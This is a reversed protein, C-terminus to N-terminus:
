EELQKLYRAQKDTISETIKPKTVKPRKGKKQTKLGEVGAARFRNVWNVLLAPNTM